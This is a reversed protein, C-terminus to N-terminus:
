LILWVVVQVVYIEDKVLRVCLYISLRGFLITCNFLNPNGHPNWTSFFNISWMTIQTNWMENMWRNQMSLYIPLYLTMFIAVSISDNVKFGKCNRIKKRTYSECSGGDWCKKKLYILNLVPFLKLWKLSWSFFELKESWINITDFDMKLYYAMTQSFAATKTNHRPYKLLLFWTNSIIKSLNTKMQGFFGQMIELIIIEIKM